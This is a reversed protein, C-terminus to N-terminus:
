YATETHATYANADAGLAAFSEGFDEGGASFLQHEVFHACGGPMLLTEGTAPQNLSRDLAGFHVVMQAFKRRFGPRPFVGVRLGCDLTQVRVTEFLTRKM